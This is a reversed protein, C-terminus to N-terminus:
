TMLLHFTIETTTTIPISTITTKTITQQQTTTELSQVKQLLSPYNNTTTDKAPKIPPNDSSASEEKLQNKISSLEELLIDYKKEYEDVKTKLARNEELIPQLNMNNNNTVSM